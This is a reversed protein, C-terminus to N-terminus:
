SQQYFHAQAQSLLSSVEATLSQLLMLLLLLVEWVLWCFPYNVFLCGTRQLQKPSSASLRALHFKSLHWSHIGLHASVSSGAACLLDSNCIPTRCGTELQPHSITRGSPLQPSESLLQAYGPDRIEALTPNFGQKVKELSPIKWPHQRSLWPAAALFPIGLCPLAAERPPLSSLNFPSLITEQKHRQQFWSCVGPWIEPFHNLRTARRSIEECRRGAM